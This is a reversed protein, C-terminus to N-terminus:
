PRFGRVQGIVAAVAVVESLGPRKTVRRDAVKIPHMHAAAILKISGHSWIEPEVAVHGDLDDGAPSAFPGDIIDEDPMKEASLGLGVVGKIEDFVTLRVALPKSPKDLVTRRCVVVVHLERLDLRVSRRRQDRKYARPQVDTPKQIPVEDL